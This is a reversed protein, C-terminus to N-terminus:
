VRAWLNFLDCYTAHADRAAVWRESMGEESFMVALCEYQRALAWYRMANAFNKSETMAREAVEDYKDMNSVWTAIDRLNKM